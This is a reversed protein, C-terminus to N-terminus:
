EDEFERMLETTYGKHRLSCYPYEHYITGYEDLSQAMCGGKCFHLFNCSNCKQIKYTRNKSVELLEIFKDGFLIDSLKNVFINGIAYEKDSLLQCPFVNGETDVKINEGLPCPYELNVMKELNFKTISPAGDIRISNRYQDLKPSLVDIFLDYGCNSVISRNNMGRGIYLLKKLAIRKIKREICWRVIDDIINLNKNHVTTSITIKENFGKDLLKKLNNSVVSFTGKGRIFDHSEEDNGELSIQINVGDENLLKILKDTVIMGNTAIVLNMKSEVISYCFDYFKPHLLPEGGSIIITNVRNEKAELLLKHFQEDTMMKEESDGFEGFCHKCKLNCSTIIEAYISKVFIDPRKEKSINETFVFGNEILDNIIKSIEGFILNKDANSKNCIRNIIEDTNRYKKINLLLDLLNEDSILWKNINPFTILFLKSNDILTYRMDDDLYLEDKM